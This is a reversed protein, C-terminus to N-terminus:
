ENVKMFKLVNNNEESINKHFPFDKKLDKSFVLKVEKYNSRCKILYYKKESIFWNHIAQTPYKGGAEIKSIPKLYIDDDYDNESVLLVWWHKKANIKEELEYKRDYFENRWEEEKQEIEGKWKIGCCPCYIFGSNYGKREPPTRAEWTGYCSLCQYISCGDDTYNKNRWFPISM